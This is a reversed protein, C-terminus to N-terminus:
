SKESKKNQTGKKGEFIEGQGRKRHVGFLSFWKLSAKYFNVRVSPIGEMKPFCGKKFNERQFKLTERHLFALGGSLHRKNTFFAASWYGAVFTGSTM